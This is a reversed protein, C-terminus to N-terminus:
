LVLGFDDFIIKDLLIKVNGVNGDCEHLPLGFFFIKNDNSKFAIVNTGVGVDPTVEYVSKASTVSPFFTKVKISSGTTKLEPYGQTTDTAVIVVKSKLFKIPSSVSDIPLIDKLQVVDVPHPLVTTFLVKGGGDTFKKITGAALDIDPQNDSYWLLVEFLKITEM